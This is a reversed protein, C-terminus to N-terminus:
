GLEGFREAVHRRITEAVWARETAGAMRYRALLEAQHVIPELGAITWSAALREFLLEERRAQADDLTAAAAGRHEAILRRTAPTLVTRLELVNGEPDTYAVPPPKRRARRRAM